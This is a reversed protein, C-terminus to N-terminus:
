KESKPNGELKIRYWVKLITHCLFLVAEVTSSRYLAREAGVEHGGDSVNLALHEATKLALGLHLALVVGVM